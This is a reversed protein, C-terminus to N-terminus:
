FAGLQCENIKINMDECISSVTMKNVKFRSAIDWAIKCALKGEVLNDTITNKLNQNATKVPKVIKKDPRYGFLGMQCKVLRCHIFDAIMGVKDPSVNLEKAILFASTCSLESNLSHKLIEYKIFSDPKADPRHKDAFKKSSDESIMVKSIIL